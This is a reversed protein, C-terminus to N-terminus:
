FYIVFDMAGELHLSTPGLQVLLSGLLSAGDSIRDLLSEFFNDDHFTSCLM